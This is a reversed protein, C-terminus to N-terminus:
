LCGQGVCSCDLGAPRAIGIKNQQSKEADAASLIADQEPLRKCRGELLGSLRSQQDSRGLAM